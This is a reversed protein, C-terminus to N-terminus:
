LFLVAALLLCSTLAIPAAQCLEQVFSTSRAERAPLQEHELSREAVRPVATVHRLSRSSTAQRRPETKQDVQAGNLHGGDLQAGELHARDLHSPLEIRRLPRVVADPALTRRKSGKKLETQVAATAAKVELGNLTSNGSVARSPAQGAVEVSTKPPVQAVEHNTGREGVPSNGM